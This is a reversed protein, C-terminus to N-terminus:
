RFGDWAKQRETPVGRQGTRNKSNEIYFFVVSIVQWPKQGIDLMGSTENAIAM